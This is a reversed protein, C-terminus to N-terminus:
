LKIKYPKIKSNQFYGAMENRAELQKKLLRGQAVESFKIKMRKSIKKALREDIFFYVVNIKKDLARKWTYLLLSTLVIASGFNKSRYKSDIILKSVEMKRQGMEESINFYKEIPLERKEQESYIIRLSAVIIGKKRICISETQSSDDEEGLKKKRNENIYGNELYVKYRLKQVEEIEEKNAISITFGRSFLLLINLKFDFELFLRKFNQNLKGRHLYYLIAGGVWFIDYISLSSVLAKGVILGALIHWPSIKQIKKM